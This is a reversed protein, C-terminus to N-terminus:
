RRGGRRQGGGYQRGTGDQPGTRKANKASYGTGNKAGYGTGNKAGYGTGDRPGQGQQVTGNRPCQAPAATSQAFALSGLLLTAAAGMMLLTSKM